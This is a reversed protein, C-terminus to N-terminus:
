FDFKNIKSKLTGISLGSEVVDQYINEMKENEEDGVDPM